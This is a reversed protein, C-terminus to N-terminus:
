NLEEFILLISLDKKDLSIILYFSIFTSAISKFVFDEVEKKKEKKEM